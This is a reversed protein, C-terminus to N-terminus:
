FLGPGDDFHPILHEEWPPYNQHEDDLAVQPGKVGIYVKGAAVYKKDFEDSSLLNPFGGGLVDDKLALFKSSTIVIHKHQCNTPDIIYFSWELPGDGVCLVM